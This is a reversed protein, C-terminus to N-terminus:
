NRWKWIGDERVKYPMNLVIESDVRWNTTAHIYKRLYVFSLGSLRAHIDRYYADIILQHNNSHIASITGGREGNAHYGSTTSFPKIRLGRRSEGHFLYFRCLLNM